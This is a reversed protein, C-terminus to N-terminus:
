SPACMDKATVAPGSAGFFPRSQRWQGARVCRGGAAELRCLVARSLFGQLGPSRQGTSAEGEETDVCGSATDRRGPGM